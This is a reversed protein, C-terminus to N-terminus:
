GLRDLREFSEFRSSRRINKRTQAAFQRRGVAREFDLEEFEHLSRWKQLSARRASGTIAHQRARAAPFVPLNGHSGGCPRGRCPRGRRIKAFRRIRDKVAVMDPAVSQIHAGIGRGKGLLTDHLAYQKGLDQRQGASKSLATRIGELIPAPQRAMALLITEGIAGSAVPINVDPASALDRIAGPRTEGFAYLRSQLLGTYGVRFTANPSSRCDTTPRWRCMSPAPPRPHSTPTPSGYRGAVRRARRAIPWTAAGDVRDSHQRGARCRSKRRLDPGQRAGDPRSRRVAFALKYQRRACGGRRAHPRRRDLARPQRRWLSRDAGRLRRYRSRKRAGCAGCPVAACPAVAAGIALVGCLVRLARGIAGGKAGNARSTRNHSM